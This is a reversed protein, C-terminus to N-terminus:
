LHKVSFCGQVDLQTPKLSQEHFDTHTHYCSTSTTLHFPMQSQGSCCKTEILSRHLIKHLPKAASSFIRHGQGLVSDDKVETMENVMTM